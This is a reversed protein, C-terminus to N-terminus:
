HTHSFTLRIDSDGVRGVARGLMCDGLRVVTVVAAAVVMGVVLALVQVLALAFTLTPTLTPM